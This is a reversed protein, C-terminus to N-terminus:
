GRDSELRNDECSSSYGNYRVIDCVDGVCFYRCDLVRRPLSGATGCTICRAREKPQQYCLPTRECMSTSVNESVVATGCERGVLSSRYGEQTKNRGGM